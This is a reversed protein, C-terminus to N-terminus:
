RMAGASEREARPPVQRFRSRDSAASPHAKTDGRRRHEYDQLKRRAADFADRVCVFVDEDLAQTVIEEGPVTLRLRLRTVPGNRHHGRPSEVWVQWNQIRDSFRSLRVARQRIKREVAPSSDSDLFRVESLPQM